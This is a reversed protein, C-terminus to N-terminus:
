AGGPHRRRRSAPSPCVCGTPTSASRPITPWGTTGPLMPPRPLSWPCRVWSPASRRRADRTPVRAVAISGGFFREVNPILLVGDRAQRWAADVAKDADDLLASEAVEVLTRLDAPGKGEAMLLGLAHALSRKGVGPEGVLIVHRYDALSLLGLLDSMLDARM